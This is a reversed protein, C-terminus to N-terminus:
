LSIQTKYTTDGAHDLAKYRNIPTLTAVYAHQRKYLLVDYRAGVHIQYYQIGLTPYYKSPSLTSMYRENTQSYM